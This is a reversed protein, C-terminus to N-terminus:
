GPGLQPGHAALYAALTLVPYTVSGTRGLFTFIGKRFPDTKSAKISVQAM